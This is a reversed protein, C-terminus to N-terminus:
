KCAIKRVPAYGEKAVLCQGADSMIWDLYKKIEGQPEGNTYMFLPRAIPYSGDLAADESPMVCPKGPEMAM